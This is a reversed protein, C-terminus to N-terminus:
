APRRMDVHPIDDELYSPSVVSFGHGGYFAALHEQASLDVPRGPFRAACFALAERMLAHGLGRGRAHPATAIRGIRAAGDHGDPAFVRLTGELRGDGGRLLLHVAEPDRGDIERFACRQEAVFVQCRLALM